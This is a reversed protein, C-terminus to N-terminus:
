LAALVKDRLGDLPSAEGSSFDRRIGLQQAIAARHPQFTYCSPPMATADWQEALPMTRGHAVLSSWQLLRAAEQERGRLGGIWDRLTILQQGALEPPAVLSGDQERWCHLLEGNHRLELSRLGAVPDTALIDYTFDGPDAAHAAALVAMDHLHTCNQKKDRRATVEALPLGIFTAVLKETAGPCTSWPARPFDPEVATVRAGDHRLIVALCHIDDELLAAVASPRVYVEVRRRFGPRTDRQTLRDPLNDTM